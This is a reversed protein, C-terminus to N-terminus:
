KQMIAEVELGIKVEDGVVVGGTELAKNWTLGFESRSIKGTAEFGARQNGWPDTAAGLFGGTLTVEKTVGKITLDGVVTIDSGSGTVQKSVFSIEPYKEAEFFDASRLHKDRKQNRTDISATQITAKASTLTMSTADTQVTGAFDNFNGRVKFVMLHPITFHIQTHAPDLQYTAAFTTPITIFLAILLVTFQKIM